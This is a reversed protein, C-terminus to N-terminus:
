RAFLCFFQTAADLGLQLCGEAWLRTWDSSSCCHDLSHRQPSLTFKHFRNCHLSLCINWPYELTLAQWLSSTFNHKQHETQRDTCIWLWIGVARTALCSSGQCVNAIFTKLLHFAFTATQLTSQQLNYNQLKRSTNRSQTALSVKNNHRVSETSPSLREDCGFYICLCRAACDPSVLLLGVSSPLYALSALARESLVNIQQCKALTPPVKDIQWFNARWLLQTKNKKM